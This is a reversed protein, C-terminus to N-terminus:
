LVIAIMGQAVCYIRTALRNLIYYSIDKLGMGRIQGEKSGEGKQYCCTQKRDRQTQKQKVCINMQITKYEVYLHYM